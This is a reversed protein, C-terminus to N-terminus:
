KKMSTSNRIVLRVDVVRDEVSLGEAADVLMEIAGFALTDPEQRISTLQPRAITAYVSDDFGILSVEEPVSINEERLTQLAGAAVSDNFCIISDFNRLTSLFDKTREYGSTFDSGTTFILTPDLSLSHEELARRYGELRDLSSYCGRKPNDMFALMDTINTFPTQWFGAFFAIERRGQRLLYKTALYGGKINDHHIHPLQPVYNRRYMIVLPFNTPFLSGLLEANNESSPCYVLGSIEALAASRLLQEELAADGHCSYVVVRLSFYEAAKLIGELVNSFFNDHTSPIILGITKGRIGKMSRAHLNPVYKLEDIAKRVREVLTEDVSPNNNVVRSVTAISVGAAKAIDVITVSKGM